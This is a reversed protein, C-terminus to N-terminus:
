TNNSCKSYNTNERYYENIFKELLAGNDIQLTWLIRNAVGDGEQLLAMILGIVTIKNEKDYYEANTIIRKLMPTFLFWQNSVKGIGVSNILEKYVKEYTIGYFNLKKTEELDTNKLIALLLHESGVYPHKLRLMEKKAAVILGHSEEDFLLNM